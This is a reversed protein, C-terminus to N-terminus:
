PTPDACSTACKASVVSGTSLLERFWDVLMTGNASVTYFDEHPLICHLEGSPVFSAFNNTSAEINDLSALMQSSWTQVDGGGMEQFYFPQASDFTTNYQSMFNTPYYNAIGIYLGLLRPIRCPALRVWSHLM